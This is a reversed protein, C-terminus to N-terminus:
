ALVYKSWRREGIKKLVGDYILTNLERQITKESCDKINDSIDKISSEGIEKIIDLIVQQRENKQMVSKAVNLTREPADQKTNSVGITKSVMNDVVGGEKTKKDIIREVVPSVHNTTCVPTNLRIETKDAVHYYSKPEYGKIEVSKLISGSLEGSKIDSVTTLSDTSNELSEENLVFGQGTTSPKERDEIVGIFNKVEGELVNHNPVSTMGVNSAIKSLSVIEICLRSLSNLIERRCPSSATILSLSVKILEVGSKRLNDKISDGAPFFDTILYIAMCLRESKKHVFNFYPDGSYFSLSALDLMEEGGNNTTNDKLNNM